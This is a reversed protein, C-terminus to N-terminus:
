VEPMPIRITRGIESTLETPNMTNNADCVQWFQESDGLTKYTILDLRDGEVFMVEQLLPMARGQPLFRRRKYAIKRGEETTYQATELNSYRSNHDFM